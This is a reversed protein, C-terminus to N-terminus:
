NGGLHHVFRCVPRGDCIDVQPPPVLTSEHGLKSQLRAALEPLVRTMLVETAARVEGNDERANYTSMRTFADSNLPTHHSRVFETSSCTLLLLFLLSLLYCLRYRSSPSPVSASSRTALPGTHLASLHQM